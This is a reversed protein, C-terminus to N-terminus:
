TNVKDSSPFGGFPLVATAGFRARCGTLTGSCMDKKLDDTPIDFRDAVARGTYGCGEGRYKWCCINALMIRAPVVSGDSESPAALELTATEATLASLREVLYKSVVEQTADATPNKGSQFNVADLFKAYTQRRIITVGTMQNFQEAAATVFGAINSVTLTPRNGAGQSTTEFGEAKIPLPEYARGQWVVPKNLENVQGCYYFVEGGFERFDVQWLDVLVDQQTASMAQLMVSSMAKIRPNM